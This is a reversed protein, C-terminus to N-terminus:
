GLREITIPLFGQRHMQSKVLHVVAPTAPGYLDVAWALGPGVDRLKWQVDVISLSPADRRGAFLLRLISEDGFSLPQAGLPIRDTFLSCLVSEAPLDAAQEAEARTVPRVSERLAADARIERSLSAGSAWASPSFCVSDIGIAAGTPELVFEEVLVTDPGVLYYDLVFAFYCKPM